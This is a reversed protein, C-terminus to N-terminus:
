AKNRAAARMAAADTRALEIAQRVTEVFGAPLQLTCGVHMRVHSATFQRRMATLVGADDITLSDEAGICFLPFDSYPTVVALDHPKEDDWPVQIAFSVTGDVGPEFTLLYRESERDWAAVYIPRGKTGERPDTRMLIASGRCHIRTSDTM